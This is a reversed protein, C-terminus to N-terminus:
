ATAPEGLDDAAAFRNRGGRKAHYLAADAREFLEDVGFPAEPESTALGITLTPARLGSSEMGPALDTMRAMLQRIRARAQEAGTEPLVLAFEDGGLRAAVERPRMLSSELLQAVRVLLRDGRAHGATDNFLKFHDIDILALTLPEGDRASAALERALAATFDRRNSLGTLTDLHAQRRWHRLHASVTVAASLALVCVLAAPGFWVHGFRLLAVSAAIVLVAPMVLCLLARQMSRGVGLWALSAAVAFAAVAQWVAPADRMAQGTRLTDAANALFEAGSMAGNGATPTFMTPALGPATTGVIVLRDRLLADPVHGELVDAYSVQPYTGDPGTFRLRVRDGRVWEFPAQSPTTSAPPATVGPTRPIALLAEALSPWHADGLGARLILERTRGDHDPALDTHGFAAAASALVPIPLLEEQPGNLESASPVVPLVVRASRRMAEALALDNAAGNRDPESLVLDMAIARAGAHQLRDILRAHVARPWPWQGLEAISREDIAVILTQGDPQATWDAMHADYIATDLNRLAGTYALVAALVGALLALLTRRSVSLPLRTM